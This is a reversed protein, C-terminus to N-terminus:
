GRWHAVRRRKQDFMRRQDVGYDRTSRRRSPRSLGQFLEAPRHRRHPRNRAAELGAPSVTSRPPFRTRHHSVGCTGCPHSASRMNSSAVLVRKQPSRNVCAPDPGGSTSVSMRAGAIAVSSMNWEIHRPGFVPGITRASASWEGEMSAM